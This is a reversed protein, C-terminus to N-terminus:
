PTTALPIYQLILGVAAFVAGAQNLWSQWKARWVVKNPPGSAYALPLPTPITGAAFWLFTSLGFSYVTLQKITQTGQPICLWLAIFIVAAVVALLIMARSTLVPKESEPIVPGGMAGLLRGPLDQISKPIFSAM